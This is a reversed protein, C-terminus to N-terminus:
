IYITHKKLCFVAYSTRMLSQLESTHEETRSPGNDSTFIILTNQDIGEEKLVKMIEGVSWDIEMMVDGYMGLESKGRFRSSVALPVHPMSHALYLFFPSHKHNRIFKVSEETYLTTLRAQDDMNRIKM